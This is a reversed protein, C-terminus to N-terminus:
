PSQWFIVCFNREQLFRYQKLWSNSCQRPQFRRKVHSARIDPEGRHGAQHDDAGQVQCVREQGQQQHVGEADPDPYSWSWSWNIISSYVKRMLILGLGIVVIALIVVLVISNNNSTELGVM